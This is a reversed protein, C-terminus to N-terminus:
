RRLSRGSRRAMTDRLPANPYLELIYLSAHEPRARHRTLPNWGNGVTQQPLWMMLDLSINDFGAARGHRLTALARHPTSRSLRQLEEDRFSQV